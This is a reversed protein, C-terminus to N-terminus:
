AFPALTDEADTKTGVPKLPTVNNPPIEPLLGLEREVERVVESPVLDLAECLAFFRDIDLPREANLYRAVQVHPIGTVAQINRLSLRKEKMMKTLIQSVLEGCKQVEVAKRMVINYGFLFLIRLDRKVVTGYPLM